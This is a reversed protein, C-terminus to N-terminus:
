RTRIIRTVTRSRPSVEYLTGGNYVYRSRMSLSHRTRAARPLSSFRLLDYEMPVHSGVGLKKAQGPPTCPLAKKALGPPCGGTGYGVPGNFRRGRTPVRDIAYAHGHGQGMDYGFHGNGHGMGPKTLGPGSFGLAVVGAFLLVPKM